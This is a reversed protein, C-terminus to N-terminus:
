TAAIINQTHMREVIGHKDTACGSAGGDSVLEADAELELLRVLVPVEVVEMVPVAELELLRVLVPVEVLEAVAVEELELVREDVEEPVLEDVEELVLEDVEEPVDASISGAKEKAPELTAPKM